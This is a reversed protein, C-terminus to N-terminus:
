MGLNIKEETLGLLWDASVGMGLAMKGLADFGPLVEGCEYRSWEVRSIDCLGSAVEQSIGLGERLRKVRRGFTMHEVGQKASGDAGAKEIENM